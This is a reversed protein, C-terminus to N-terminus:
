LGIFSRAIAGDRVEFMATAETVGASGTIRERALLWGGPWTITEIVECHIGPDALRKAYHARLEDRGSLPPGASVGYVLADERYCALYAELDHANFTEVQRRFVAEPESMSM